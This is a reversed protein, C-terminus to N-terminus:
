TPGSTASVLAAVVSRHPTRGGATIHCRIGDAAEDALLWTIDGDTEPLAVAGDPPPHVVVKATVGYSRPLIRRWHRVAEALTNVSQGIYVDDCLVDGSPAIRYCGGPWAVSEVLVLQRGAFIAHPIPPMATGAPRVGLFVRVGPLATLGALLVGTRTAVEFSGAGISRLSRRETDTIAALSGHFRRELVEPPLLARNQRASRLRRIVFVVAPGLGCLVVLFLAQDWGAASIRVVVGTLAVASVLWAVSAATVAAWGPVGPDRGSRHLTSPDIM